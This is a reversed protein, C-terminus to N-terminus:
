FSKKFLHTKLHKKFTEISDLNRINSPLNNWLTPAAVTFARGGLTPLVKFSPQLLLLGNNNSRLGYASKPKVVILDALYPPSLGHLVKFTMLLIKFEIRAHIPLWHLSYLAPTIHSFKPVNMVLRAAANQVRQLKSIQEKTIGYYLSNCYDLRSTVFAHIVKVLSDTSLYQKIRRINHLYFFASKCVYNIQDSMNLQANLWCGLNKVSTSPKINVTGVKLSSQNIKALQQRTGILIVETKDGNLMLNNTAMWIGLKDICDEMVKIADAHSSNDPKFSIYLQTDDAYCHVKPLTVGVVDFLKSAYLIFLLPGLCSGQPVGSSLEFRASFSGDIFIRQGRNALYSTFWDLASGKFGFDDSLRKILVDHSITDFASSLDLMVLLTVEQSNMKLLIDNTVKLLATETSHFRRYSSQLTPYISNAMLHNHSQDFVAKEVLKSIYKLNSLPRYNKFLLDANAKKLLPKVLACKWDEAFRGSELSLNIIKTVVPLLVDSCELVLSTPMPDLDCTKKSVTRMLKAVDDESLMSFRDLTATTRVSAPPDAQNDPFDNIAAAGLKSHINAIKEVFYEGMKNALETADDFPPFVARNINQNLLKKTAEFLKRQDTSNEDIFSQYYDRKSQNMLNNVSNKCAKYALMDHHNGSKRWKREAKRKERRATKIEQTFWPLLPRSTIVKTQLPAHRELLDALTNDYCSVTDNLSEFTKLCLDSRGLDERLIRKDIDKVKRYSVKKVEPPPKGLALDCLLTLHDSFYYDTLPKSNILVDSCRTIILDLIHGSVHTPKKVHQELGMSSLLDCFKVADNDQSQDLHINFDGTILLPQPCLVVNELLSAFEEFFVSMTVPHGTSYPPRYVVLLRLKNSGYQLLWDGYEFSRFLQIDMQQAKITNKFLLACGGGRRNDRTVDLFKFGPLTIEARHAMDDKTLWTETIAILDAGTSPIYCAFDTSKNKISRANFSCLRLHRKPNQQVNNNCPININNTRPCRHPNFDWPHHRSPPILMNSYPAISENFDIQFDFEARPCFNNEAFFPSYRGQFMVTNISRRKSLGARCGRRTINRAIGCDRLVRWTSNDLAPIDHISSIISLLITRSYVWSAM